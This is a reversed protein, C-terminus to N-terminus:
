QLQAQAQAQSLQDALRFVELLLDSFGPDELYLWPLFRTESVIETLFRGIQSIQLHHITKKSNIKDLLQSMQTVSEELSRYQQQFDDKGTNTVWHAGGWRMGSKFTPGSLRLTTYGQVSIQKIVYEPVEGM